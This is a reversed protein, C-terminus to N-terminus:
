RHERTGERYWLDLACIKWFRNIESGELDCQNDEIIKSQLPGGGLVCKCDPSTAAIESGDRPSGDDGQWLVIRDKRPIFRVVSLPLEAEPLLALVWRGLGEGELLIGKLM